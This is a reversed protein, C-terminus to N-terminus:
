QADSCRTNVISVVRRVYAEVSHDRNFRDSAAAGLQNCLVPDHLLRVIADRLSSISGIDVLLADQEHIAYDVTTNTRTIIVARGLAAAQLLVMQGASIDDVRLPLVVFAASALTKLYDDDFCHDMIEIQNSFPIGALSAAVDCIIKLRCPLGIIAQALIPYDRGSRGATVIMPLGDGLPPTAALADRNDVTIGYPVFVLKHAHRPFLVGYTSLEARAHCIGLDIAAMIFRYYALYLANAIRSKRQTIILTQFVILTRRRTLTRIAGFVLAEVDSSVLVADPRPQSSILSQIAVVLMKFLLTPYIRLLLEIRSRYRLNVPAILFRHAIGLRKLEEGVPSTEINWPRLHVFHLM